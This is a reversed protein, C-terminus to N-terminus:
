LSMFRVHAVVRLLTHRPRRGAPVHARDRAVRAWARGGHAGARTRVAEPRGRRPAGLEDM